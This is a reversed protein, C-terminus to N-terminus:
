CKDLDTNEMIASAPCRSLCGSPITPDEKIPLPEKGFILQCEGSAFNPSMTLPVGWQEAFFRQTPVKCMKACVGKCGSGELVRCRHVLVGGGRPDDEGRSTLSMDGVLFPLLWKAFWSLIAPTAELSGFFTKYIFPVPGALAVMTQYSVRELEDPGHAVRFDILERMMGDYGPIDSVQGSQRQLTWRFAAVFADDLLSPQFPYDDIPPSPIDLASKYSEPRPAPPPLALGSTPDISLLSILGFLTLFVPPRSGSSNRRSTASHLSDYGVPRQEASAHQQTQDIVINRHHESPNDELSRRAMDQGELLMPSAAGFLLTASAVLLLRAPEDILWSNVFQAILAGIRGSATCIGLGTSRVSTPFEEGTITDIANWAAISFAQFSCASLVIMATNANPVDVDPRVQSYHAFIILSLASCGMALTLLRRRGIRDLLAGALINGPLNAAAFLLANFYVNSLNIQVFISNIWTLLGYSGFSLAFWIMQLPITIGKRLNRSYLDKTSKVGDALASKIDFNREGGTFRNTQSQLFQQALEDVQLLRFAGSEDEVENENNYISRAGLPMTNAGMKIALTNAIETAEEVMGIKALFRPSAPVVMWVAVAGALSPVACLVAFIRWGLDHTQFSLIAILAVYISGVMWFSAVINVCLGRRTPPSLESVLSFLPPISAGIGVGAILRITALNYANTSLASLIGAVANLVLGFLLTPRRGLSDAVAGVVLGGSLMGIFVSAAILGSEFHGGSNGNNLIDEQFNLDSLLYSLCLIESADSANALGLSLIILHYALKNKDCLDSLMSSEERAHLLSGPSYNNRHYASELFSDITRPGNEHMLMMGNFNDNELPSDNCTADADSENEGAHTTGGKGEKNLTSIASGSAYNEGFTDLANSNPAPGNMEIATSSSGPSPRRRNAPSAM